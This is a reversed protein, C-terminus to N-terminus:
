LCFEDFILLLRRRLREILRLMKCMRTRKALCLQRDSSCACGGAQHIWQATDATLRLIYITSFTGSQSATLQPGSCRFILVNLESHGVVIGCLEDKPWHSHLVVNFAILVWPLWPAKFTLLGLFSLRTDPNRRSWIYVLTSSLTTGLFAQSSFPAITLLTTAAYFLLWAFHAVSTASEELM